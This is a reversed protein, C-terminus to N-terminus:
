LAPPHRVWFRREWARETRWRPGSEGAGSTDFRLGAVVMYAHGNTAYVDIWHGHGSDGWHM